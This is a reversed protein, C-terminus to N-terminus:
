GTPVLPRLHQLLHNLLLLGPLPLQATRSAKAQKPMLLMLNLIRLLLLLFHTKSPKSVNRDPQTPTTLLAENPHHFLGRSASRHLLGLSANLINVQRRSSPHSAPLHQLHNQQHQLPNGKHELKLWIIPHKLIQSNTEGFSFTVNNEGLFLVPTSNGTPIPSATAPVCLQRLRMYFAAFKVTRASSHSTRHIRPWTTSKSTLRAAPTHAILPPNLAM